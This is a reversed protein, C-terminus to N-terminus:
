KLIIIYTVNTFCIRSNAPSIYKKFYILLSLLIICLSFFFLLYYLHHLRITTGQLQPLGPDPGMYVGRAMAMCTPGDLDKAPRSQAHAILKLAFAFAVRDM